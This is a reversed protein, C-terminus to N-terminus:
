LVTPRIAVNFYLRFEKSFLYMFKDSHYVDSCIRSLYRRVEFMQEIKSFNVVFFIHTSLDSALFSLSQPFVDWSLNSEGTKTNIVPQLVDTTRQPLHGISGQVPPSHIEAARSFRFPFIRFFKDRRAPLREIIGTPNWLERHVALM